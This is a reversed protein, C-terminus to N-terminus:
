KDEMFWYQNNGQAGIAEIAVAKNLCDKCLDIDKQTVYPTTSRGEIQETKFLVPLKISKIEEETHSTINDDIEVQKKCIDCQKVKMIKETM